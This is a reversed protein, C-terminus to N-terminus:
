PRVAAIREGGKGSAPTAPASPSREVVPGGPRVNQRGEVIVREGPQVGTVVADQGAAHVLEVPRVAAKGDADVVYVTRGRAGQIIAAQPIVVAGKLTQVALRVGVFAGPWLTDQHNDFLAKVKVTGTGADVVNDVVHLRGQMAGRGEPLVATVRGGGAQLSALAESVHRQPLSFAVAIPDLQALTVLPPSTPSVVSGSAVPVLGARGTIPAVIRTHSLAVRAAQVAARGAAVVARQTDVLTRNQDVAVQSVFNQAHLEQSRALQREADALAALDKQLQAQVRALEADLARADLTFLVQGRRVPQGERIHVREVIGNVQPRIEVSTLPTVTGTAELTVPVDRQEARVTTVSIPARPASAAGV